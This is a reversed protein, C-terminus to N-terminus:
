GPPTITNHQTPHHKSHHQTTHHATTHDQVFLTRIDDSVWYAFTSPCLFGHVCVWACWCVCVCVFLVCVCIFLCIVCVLPQQEDAPMETRPPGHAAEVCAQLPQQQPVITCHSAEYPHTQILPHTQTPPTIQLGGTEDMVMDRHTKHLFVMCHTQSFLSHVHLLLVMCHTQSFLSHVHLM